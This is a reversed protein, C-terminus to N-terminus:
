EDLRYEMAWAHPYFDWEEAASAVTNGLDDTSMDSALEHIRDVYGGLLSAAVCAGRRMEPNVDDWIAVDCMKRLRAYFAQRKGRPCPFIHHGLVHLCVGRVSPPAEPNHFLDELRRMLAANWEWRRGLGSIIFCGLRTRWHKDLEASLFGSTWPASFDMGIAVVAARRARDTLPLEMYAWKAFRASIFVDGDNLFDEQEQATLERFRSTRWKWGHKPM